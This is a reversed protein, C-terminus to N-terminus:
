QGGGGSMSAVREEVACVIYEIIQETRSGHSTCHHKNIRVILPILRRFLTGQMETLSNKLVRM